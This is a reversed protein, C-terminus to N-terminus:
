ENYVRYVIEEWLPPLTNNDWDWGDLTGLSPLGPPDTNIEKVDYRDDRDQTSTDANKSKGPKPAERSRGIATRKPSSSENESRGVEKVTSPALKYGDPFKTRIRDRLDQPRRHSLSLTPDRQITSWAMGHKSLGTMLNNDEAQSWRRRAQRTIQTDTKREKDDRNGNSLAPKPAELQLRSLEATYKDVTSATAKRSAHSSQGSAESTKADSILRSRGTGSPEADVNTRGAKYAEPCCVRFRDKLDVTSRTNLNLETDERMQKWKGVGYKAVGKLLNHTEAETWKRLNKRTKEDPKTAKQPGKQEVDETLPKEELGDSFLTNKEGESEMPPLLNAGPPPEHLGNVIAFPGFPPPKSEKPPLKPLRIHDLKSRKPPREDSLPLKNEIAALNVFAAVGPRSTKENLSPPQILAQISTPKEFGRKSGNENKSKRVSQGKRGFKAREGEDAAANPELPTPFTGSPIPNRLPAIRVSPYSPLSVIQTHPDDLIVPFPGTLPFTNM